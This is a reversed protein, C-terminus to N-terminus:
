EGVCLGLYSERQTYQQFPLRPELDHAFRGVDVVQQGPYLRAFRVQYQQAPFQWVWGLGLYQRGQACGAGMEHDNSEASSQLRTSCGQVSPGIGKDALRVRWFPQQSGDVIAPSTSGDLDFIQGYQVLYAKRLNKM